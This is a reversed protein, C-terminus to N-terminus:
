GPNSMLWSESPDDPDPEEVKQCDHALQYDTLYSESGDDWQVDIFRVNNPRLGVKMITGQIHNRKIRVGLAPSIQNNDKQRM